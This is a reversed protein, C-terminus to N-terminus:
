NDDSYKKPDVKYNLKALINATQQLDDSLENFKNTPLWDSNFGNWSREVCTKLILNKDQGNKEVETIFSNFATKTNVGKKAKRVKLWEKALEKDFGYNILSELFNFKTNNIDIDIDIDSDIDAKKAKTQKDLFANPKNAEEQNKPRGGKKGNESRKICTEEYKVLDRKLAQKIPEFVVETFFDCEPDEDNVYRLIHKFLIGAQEDTLKEATHIIDKYLVFGNKDKAMPRFKLCYFVGAVGYARV